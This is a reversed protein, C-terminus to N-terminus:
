KARINELAKVVAQFSEISERYEKANYAQLGVEYSSTAIRFEDPYSLDARIGRAYRLRNEALSKWNSARYAQFLSEVEAEALASLRKSEESYEISKDYEGNAFAQEAKLQLERAKLYNPNSRLLDQAATTQLVLFLWLLALAAATTSRRM